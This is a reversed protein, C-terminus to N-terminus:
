EVYVGFQTKHKIGLHTHVDIMMYHLGRFATYEWHYIDNHDRSTTITKDTFHSGLSEGGLNKAEEGHNEVTFKVSYPLMPQYPLKLKFKIWKNKPLIRSSPSYEGEVQGNKDAYVQALVQIGEGAPNLTSDLPALPSLKLYSDWKLIYQNYNIAQGKTDTHNPQLYPVLIKSGNSAISKVSTLEKPFDVFDRISKGIMIENRGAAHQLKSAVDVYFSTTTVEEMGPYGYSGWLVDKQKGFDVGVRIGFPEKYGLASLKPIVSQEVFYCLVSACNLGDIIGAEPSMRLGGFYAMVADGMIRHVHGDFSKIIEIAARIFANKIKYVDELPYLLSLRTSSEIDMFLTTIPCYVQEDTGKLDKFDPHDGIDPLQPEGKSYLPRLIRQISYQPVIDHSRSDSFSSIGATMSKGVIMRNSQRQSDSVGLYRSFTDQFSETLRM